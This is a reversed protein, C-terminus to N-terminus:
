RQMGYHYLICMTFISIKGEYHQNTLNGSQILLIMLTQLLLYKEM